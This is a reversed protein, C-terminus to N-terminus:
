GDFTYTMKVTLSRQSSLPRRPQGIDRNSNLSENYVLYLNNGQRPNYRFRVNGLIANEASNHQVFGSLSYEVSPTFDLRFRQLHTTLTEDDPFSIHNVEYTSALSLHRSVNWAPSMNYSIRHGDFFTGATFAINTRVPWGVPMGYSAEGVLFSYRNASVTLDNSLVFPARVDEILQTLSVRFSHGANSNGEWAPGIRFTELSRDRNRFYAAGEMSLRHRQLPSDGGPVWGYSIRDGVQFYDERLEFGLGPRYAEGARAYRLAYNFGSYSRREWLLEARVADLKTFTNRQGEDFTQAWKVTVYEDNLIRFRGDLGYAVNYQGDMGVRSTFIGGVKSYVNFMKRQLRFVGLNESSHMNEEPSFNSFRATQMSLMGVDWPGLRGVVRAGGLIRVPRGQSLGIRRSYFLRNPGGFNFSFNSAREKFFQRKEPFFLSFRTLNVQQDDAEVQAFDTNVTLDLTFGSSLGIKADLGVEGTFDRTIEHATEESNLVTRRDLGGLMYPTVRLPLPPTVDKFIVEQFQSVKWRSLAGWKPPIAPYIIDESKGAILRGVSLGMVVDDGESQFGLSSLPIRMEAFWGESSQETEVEWFTNWDFDLPASGTGDDSVTLDTRLGTPATLFAVASEQDRFTDLILAFLDSDGELYDRSFSASSPAAEDYCRCAAYIHDDDYTLFIETRETPPAGFDPSHQVVPLRLASEWAPEAIRGDLLITSSARPVVLPEGTGLSVSQAAVEGSLGSLGLATAAFTSLMYCWPMLKM